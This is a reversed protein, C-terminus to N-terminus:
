RHELATVLEDPASRQGRVTKKIGHENLWKRPYVDPEFIDTLKLLMQRGTHKAKDGSARDRPLDSRTVECRFRLSAVPETQYIYVIDGPIASIRQHWALTDNGSERFGREVDFYSPNSPIIWYARTQEPAGSSQRSARRSPTRMSASGGRTLDYSIRILEIIREDPITDDLIVTVWFKKNMHYARYIGTEGLLSGLSAPDIKVNMVEVEAAAAGSEATGKELKDARVPMIIGFWKETRLHRFAATGEFKEWLFAPSVGYETLIHEAIRNAQDSEFPVEYFCSAAIRELLERYEERAAGVFAGTQTEINIPAYEDGTEPDIARCRVGSFSDGDFHVEVVASLDGGMFDETYILNGSEGSTRGPTGDAGSENRSGGGPPLGPEFGYEKLKQPIPRRRAFVDRAINM